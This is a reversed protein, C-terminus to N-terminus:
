STKGGAKRKKVSKSSGKQITESLIRSKPLFRALVLDAVLVCFLLSYQENVQCGTLRVLVSYSLNDDEWLQPCAGDVIM